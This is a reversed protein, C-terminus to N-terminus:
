DEIFHASTNPIGSNTPYETKIKVLKFAIGYKPDSTGAAQIWLKSPVIICTIISRFRVAASFSDISRCELVYSNTTDKVIVPTQIEHTHYDTFLNLKMYPPKSADEPTRVIPTYVYKACRSALLEMKMAESRFRDDFKKSFTLMERDLPIKLLARQYDGKFWAGKPPVGYADLTISPLQIFPSRGGGYKPLMLEQVQKRKMSEPPQEFKLVGVDYDGIKVVTTAM